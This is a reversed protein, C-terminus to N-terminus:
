VGQRTPADVAASADEQPWVAEGGPVGRPEYIGSFFAAARRWANQEAGRPEYRKDWARLRDYERLQAQLADATRLAREVVRRRAPSEDPVAKFLLAIHVLCFGDSAEYERELRQDGADLARIFDALELSSGHTTSDCARCRNGPTLEHTFRSRDTRELYRTLRRRWEDIFAELLISSGSKDGYMAEEIETLLWTHRPCFGFTDLLARRVHPDNVNEHVLAELYRRERRVLAWCAPCGPREMAWRLNLLVLDSV